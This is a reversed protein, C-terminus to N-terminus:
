LYFLPRKLSLLILTPYQNWRQNHKNIANCIRYFLGSDHHIMFSKALKIFLFFTVIFELFLSSLHKWHATVTANFWSSVPLYVSLYDFILGKISLYLQFNIVYGDLFFSHFVIRVIIFFFRVTARLTKHELFYLYVYKRGVNRLVIWKTFFLNNEWHNWVFFSSIIKCYFSIQKILLFLPM